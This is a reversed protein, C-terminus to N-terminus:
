KAPARGRVGPRDSAPAGAGRETGECARQARGPHDRDVPWDPAILRRKGDSTLRIDPEDRDVRDWLKCTVQKHM